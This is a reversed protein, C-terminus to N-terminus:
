RCRAQRRGDGAGCSSGCSADSDGADDGHGVPCRNASRVRALCAVTWASMAAPWLLRDM